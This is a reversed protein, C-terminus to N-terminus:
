GSTALERTVVYYRGKQKMLSVASGKDGELKKVLQLAWDDGSMAKVKMVATNGGAGNNTSSANSGNEM